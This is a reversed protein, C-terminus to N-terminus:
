FFSKANYITKINNNLNLMSLFKKFINEHFFSSSDIIVNSSQREYAINTKDIVQCRVISLFPFNFVTTNTM